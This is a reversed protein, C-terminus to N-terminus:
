LNTRIILDWDEEAMDVVPSQRIIGTNNVLIHLGGMAALAADFAAQVQAADGVDCHFAHATGGTQRITQVVAAAAADNIDLISVEAGERVFRQAIARGIGNAAGTVIAKKNALIM